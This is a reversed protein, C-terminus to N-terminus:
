GILVQKDKLSFFDLPEKDGILKKHMIATLNNKIVKDSVQSIVTAEDLAVEKRRVGSLTGLLFKNLSEYDIVEFTPKPAEM